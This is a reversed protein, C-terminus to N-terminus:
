IKFRVCGGREKVKTNENLVVTPSLGAAELFTFYIDAVDANKPRLQQAFDSLLVGTEVGDLISIQSNSLKIRPCCLIKDVLSDAKASLKKKTERIPLDIKYKPNEEAQYKPLM